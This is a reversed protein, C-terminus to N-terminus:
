KLKYLNPIEVIDDNTLLMTLLNEVSLSRLNTFIARNLVHDRPPFLTPQKPPNPIADPKPLGVWGSSVYEGHTHKPEVIPFAM